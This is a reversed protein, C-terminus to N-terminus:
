SQKIIALSYNNNLYKDVVKIIDKQTVKKIKKIYNLGEEARYALEWDGISSAFTQSDENELLMEGELFQRAELLEKSSIKKLKQFEDLTIQICKSINKKNTSFYASFTGYNIHPDHHIGVEYALGHKVRIERFLKGSLGRGLIAKIVDLVYSDPEKRKSTKYGLIVYSQNTKRMEIKQSKKNLKEEKFTSKVKSPNMKSFYKNIKIKLNPIDGVITVVMNPATYYKKHYNKLDKSTLYRVSKATGYIPNKAPFKDFLTKLFLVWQYNRPQDIVLKIESLVIKSEKKMLKQDFTPNILIDSLIELAKEFHKKIIKVFFCTTENTTYASIEGGLSEISNAIEQSTRKKTGEFVVHEIFHSIGRIKDTENNSGVNVTVQITAIDSKRKLEIIKLGSKLRFKNM